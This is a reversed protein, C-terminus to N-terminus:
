QATYGGDVVYEAGTVFSSDDSALFAVVAAVEAPEGIRGLPHFAAMMKEAEAESANFAKSAMELGSKTRILGPHVSNVRIKYGRSGCYVALSKSFLRVGGKAASYPIVSPSGVLGAVSSVNIISGGGTKQMHKIALQCGIFTSDLNLSIVKRWADLSLTEIDSFTGGGANNVLCHIAGERKLLEDFVGHWDGESVADHKRGYAVGGAKNIAEARAMAGNEDIDTCYVRAGEKALTEAMAAGLGQAAGTVLAVKNTLRAM